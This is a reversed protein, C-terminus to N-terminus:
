FRVHFSLQFTRPVFDTSAPDGIGGVQNTLNPAFVPNLLNPSLKGHQLDSLHLVQGGRGVLTGNPHVCGTCNFFDSAPAGTATLSLGLASTVDNSNFQEYNPHNFLNFADARLDLRINEAHAVKFEKHLSTDLRYFPAGRGADRELNGNLFQFDVADGTLADVAGLKSANAPALFTNRISNCTAAAFGAGVCSAVAGPGFLANSGNFSAIGATSITGDSLVNPRQQTESGVGFFRGDAYGASGTSVPYPRGSQLQGVFNLGLDNAVWGLFRNETMRGSDLVVSFNAAHRVDNFAPGLEARVNRPDGPESTGFFDEASALAHSWTYSAAFQVHNSFRKTASLLLGNYHSTRSNENTRVAAFRNDPRASVPLTPDVPAQNQFYFFGSHAPDPAVVPANTDREGFLGSGFQGIYQAEGVLTKTFEHQIGFNVGHLEPNRLNPSIPRVRGFFDSGPPVLASLLAPNPANPFAALVAPNTTTITNLTTGDFNLSDLVVNNFALQTTEAFSAKFLTRQWPAFTFGLRPQFNNKDSSCAPIIGNGQFCTGNPGPIKGGKFAGAEYDYRLGANMTLKTTLKWTDQFYFGYINDKSTVAGPGTAFTFSSPAGTKDLVYQGFHFQQFLSFWPYYSINVGTKFTHSGHTWTLNDIYQFRKNLGGQPCCFNAGSTFSPVAHIVGPQTTNDPISNITRFFFFRAENVLTPTLSSILGTNLFASHIHQTTLDDPTVNNGTQVIQNDFFQRDAHYSVTLTHKSTLKADIKGSYLLNNVPQQVTVTSGPTLTLPASQRSLEYSTFWFLRDKLFPGGLTFGGEQRHFPARPKGDLTTAGNALLSLNYFTDSAALNRGRFYMHGDGHIQNSGSKTVANLVLGGAQGYEANYNNTLVQFEQIEDVSAGIGGFRGSVLQDTINAGDVNYLNGRNNISGPGILDVGAGGVTGSVGSNDLKVGPATLALQAYDNAIGGAGAFTPLREMDLSTISTSVETKTTEILPVQGSVEITQTTGGAGLKLNIDRRDGVNLTVSRVITTAFSKATGKVDYVGPPLDPIVYAGSSTTKTTHAIGTSTNTAVVTADLVVAGQVDTVQGVITATSQANAPSAITCSLAIWCFLGILSRRM